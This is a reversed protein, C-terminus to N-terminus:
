QMNHPSVKGTYFQLIMGLNTSSLIMISLPFLLDLLYVYGMPEEKLASGFHLAISSFRSTRPSFDDSNLASYFKFKHM